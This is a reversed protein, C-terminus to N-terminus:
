KRLKYCFDILQHYTMRAQLSTILLRRGEDNQLYFMGRQDKNREITVYEKDKKLLWLENKCEKNATVMDWPVQSTNMNRLLLQTKVLLCIKNISTQFQVSHRRIDWCAFLVGQVVYHM